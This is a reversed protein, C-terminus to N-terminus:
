GHKQLDLEERIIHRCLSELYGLRAQIQEETSERDGMLARYEVVSVLTGGAEIKATKPLLYRINQGGKIGIKGGFTIPTPSTATTQRM